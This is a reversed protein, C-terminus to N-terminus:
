KKSNKAKWQKSCTLIVAKRDYGNTICFEMADVAWQPCACEGRWWSCGTSYPVGTRRCFAATGGAQRIIEKIDM